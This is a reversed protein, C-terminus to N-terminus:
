SSRSVRSSGVAGAWRAPRSATTSRRVTHAWSCWRSAAGPVAYPPPSDPGNQYGIVEAFLEDVTGGHFRHLHAALTDRGRRGVFTALLEDDVPLGHARFLRTWASRSRHETAVLTGDLDFLVAEPIM